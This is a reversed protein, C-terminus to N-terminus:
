GKLMRAIQAPALPKGKGNGGGAAALQDANGQLTSGSRRLERAQEVMDPQM